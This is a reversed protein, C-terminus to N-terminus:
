NNRVEWSFSHYNLKWDKAQIIGNKQLITRIGIKGGFDDKYWDFLESINIERRNSDIQTTKTIFAKECQLLQETISYENFFVIDPGDTAGFYLGFHIRYDPELVRLQKIEPTETILYNSRRLIGHEIENLSLLQGAIPIYKNSLYQKRSKYLAPTRKISLLTHGNYINLWFVKKRNDSYLQNKLVTFQAKAVIQLISDATEFRNQNAAEIFQQSIQTYDIYSQASLSPLNYATTGLYIAISLITKRLPTNKISPLM